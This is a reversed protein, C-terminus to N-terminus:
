QTPSNKVSVSAAARGTSLTACVGKCNARNQAVSRAHDIGVNGVRVSLLDEGLTAVQRLTLRLGTLDRSPESIAERGKLLIFLCHCVEQISHSLRRVTWLRNVKWRIEAMMTEHVGIRASKGHIREVEVQLRERRENSLGVSIPRHNIVPHFVHTTRQFIVVPFFNGLHIFFEGVVSPHSLRPVTWWKGWVGGHPAM